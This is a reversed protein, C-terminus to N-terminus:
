SLGVSLCEGRACGMGQPPPVVPGESVSARWLGRTPNARSGCSWVVAGNGLHKDDTGSAEM